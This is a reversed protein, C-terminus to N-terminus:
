RQREQPEVCERGTMSRPRWGSAFLRDAGQLDRCVPAASGGRPTEDAGIAPEHLDRIGHRGDIEEAVVDVEGGEGIGHQAMGAGGHLLVDSLFFEPLVAEDDLDGAVVAVQELVEDFRAHGTESEFGRRVDGLHRSFHRPSASRTKRDSGCGSPEARGFLGRRVENKPLLTKAWAGSVFSKTAPAASSSL